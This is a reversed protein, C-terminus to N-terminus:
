LLAESGTSEFYALDEQLLDMIDLGQIDECFQPLFSVHSSVKIEANYLAINVTEDSEPGADICAEAANDEARGLDDAKAETNLSCCARGGALGRKNTTQSLERPVEDQKTARSAGAKASAKEKSVVNGQWSYGTNFTVSGCEQSNNDARAQEGEKGARSAEETLPTAILEAEMLGTRTRAERSAEETLPCTQWRGEVFRGEDWTRYGANEAVGHCATIQKGAQGGWLAYAADREARLCAACRLAGDLEAELGAHRIQMVQATATLRIDHTFAFWM